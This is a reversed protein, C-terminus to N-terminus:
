TFWVFIRPIAVIVTDINILCTDSYWYVIYKRFCLFIFLTLSIFHFVSERM